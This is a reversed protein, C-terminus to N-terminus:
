TKMPNMEQWRRYVERGRARDAGSPPVSDTLDDLADAREQVASAPLQALQREAETAEADVALARAELDALAQELRNAQEAKDFVDAYMANATAEDPEADMEDQAEDAIDRAEQAAVRADEVQAKLKEHRERLEEAKLFPASLQDYRERADWYLYGGRWLVSETQPTQFVDKDLAKKLGEVFNILIGVKDNVSGRLAKAWSPVLPKGDAGEVEDARALLEAQYTLCDPCCMLDYVVMRREDNMKKPTVKGVTTSAETMARIADENTTITQHWWCVFDLISNVEETGAKSEPYCRLLEIALINAGYSTKNQMMTEGGHKRFVQQMLNLHSVTLMKTKGNVTVIRKANGTKPAIVVGKQGTRILPDSDYATQCSWSKLTKTSGGLENKVQRVRKLAPWFGPLPKNNAKDWPFPWRKGPRCGGIDSLVPRGDYTDNRNKVLCWREAEARLAETGGLLAACDVTFAFSTPAVSACHQWMTEDLAKFPAAAAAAASPSAEPERVAKFLAMYEKVTSRELEADLEAATAPEILWSRTESPNKEANAEKITRVILRVEENVFDHYLDWMQSQERRPLTDAFEEVKAVDAPDPTLSLRALRSHLEERVADTSVNGGLFPGLVEALRDDDMQALTRDDYQNAGSAELAGRQAMAEEDVAIAQANDIQRRLRALQKRESAALPRACCKYNPLGTVLNSHRVQACVQAKLQDLAENSLGRFGRRNRMYYNYLLEARTQEAETLDEFAVPVEFSRDCLVLLSSADAGPPAGGIGELERLEGDAPSELQDELRAAADDDLDNNLLENAIMGEHITMSSGDEAAAAAPPPLPANSPGAASAPAPAPAPAPADVVVDDYQQPELGLRALRQKERKEERKQKQHEPYCSPPCGSKKWHCRSCGKSRDKPQKNKTPGRMGTSESEPGNLQMRAM